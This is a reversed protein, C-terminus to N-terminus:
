EYDEIELSDIYEFDLSDLYEFYLSDNLSIDLTDLTIERLYNRNILSKVVNSDTMRIFRDGKPLITISTDNKIMSIIDYSISDTFSKHFVLSIMEDSILYKNFLTDQISIDTIISDVIRSVYVTDIEKDFVIRSTDRSLYLSVNTGLRRGYKLSPTPFQDYVIASLSDAYTVVTEDYVVESINLSNNSLIDRVTSLKYGRVNPIFTESNMNRNIGLVLDITSGSELKTGVPIEVGNIESRIVSNTAIDEIYILKGLNFGSSALKTKAQRLSYNTLLPMEVIRTTFSNLTLFIRRNKKVMSGAIPNQKTIHGKPFRPVYVSDVIELQLEMNNAISQAQALSLQTLDPVKLEDNHRTYAALILHIAIIGVVLTLIIFLITKLIPYKKAM